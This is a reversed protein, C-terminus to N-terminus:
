DLVAARGNYTLLQPSETAMPLETEPASVVGIEHSKLREARDSDPERTHSLTLKPPPLNNRRLLKLSSSNFREVDHVIVPIDNSKAFHLIDHAEDLPRHNMTDYGLGIAVRGDNSQGGLPNEGILSKLLSIQEPHKGDMNLLVMPSLSQPNAFPAVCCISRIGSELTARICKEACERSVAEHSHDMVPTIGCWLAETAGSLQALYMDELILFTMHGQLLHACYDLFPHDAFTTRLQAQFVHRHGDIFSPSVIYDSADIVETGSDGTGLDSSINAIINDEVLIDSKHLSPKKADDFQLVNGSKMLYKSM